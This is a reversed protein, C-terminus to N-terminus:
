GASGRWSINWTSFLRLRALPSTVSARYAFERSCWGHFGWLVGDEQRDRKRGGGAGGRRVWRCGRKVVGEGDGNRATFGLREQEETIFVKERRVGAAEEEGQSKGGRSAPFL